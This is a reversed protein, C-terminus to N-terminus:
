RGGFKLNSIEDSTTSKRQEIFSKLKEVGQDYSLADIFNHEKNRKLCVSTRQDFFSDLIGETYIKEKIQEYIDDYRQKFTENALLRAKLDNNKDGGMGGGMNGMGEPRAGNGNMGPPMQRDGTEGGMRAMFNKMDGTTVGPPLRGGGPMQMGSGMTMGGGGMGGFALNQDRTLMYFKNETKCYYLYYNNGAGGFSDSNSMFTDIALIHLVSDVDIYEDIHEAFDGTTSQSVFKLMEILQVSDDDNENTAQEFIETYLTPDDGLYSFSSFSDVKFLIGDDGSFYRNLYLEDDVVESVIYLHPDKGDIQIQGYSTEPTPQGMKQYVTYAAPEALLTTDSFGAKRLAIQSRGEYTQGDVYKDFKILLPLYDTNNDGSAGGYGGIMQRIDENMGSTTGSNAIAGSFGEVVGGRMMEQGPNRGAAQMLSSNGKLRVGVNEITVGDIMIDVKYYDKEKTETYTTIMNQYEGSTMMLAISHMQDTAFLDITNKIDNTTATIKGKNGINYSIIRTTGFSILVLLFIGIILIYPRNRKFTISM